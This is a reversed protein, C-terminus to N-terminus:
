ALEALWHVLFHSTMQAAMLVRLPQRSAGKDKASDGQQPGEPHNSCGTELAAPLLLSPVSMHVKSPARWRSEPQGPGRVEVEAEASM